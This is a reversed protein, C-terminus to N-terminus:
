CHRAHCANLLTTCPVWEVIDHMARMWCHRAHCANLLTTCPVCEVIDHMAGMWPMHQCACRKLLTVLLKGLHPPFFFHAGMSDNPRPPFHKRLRLHESLFINCFVGVWFCALLTSFFFFLGFQLMKSLYYWMISSPYQVARGFFIYLFCIQSSGFFTKHFLMWYWPM